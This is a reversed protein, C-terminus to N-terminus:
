GILIGEQLQKIIPAINQQIIRYRKALKKIRKRFPETFRIEVM